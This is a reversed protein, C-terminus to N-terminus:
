LFLRVVSSLSSTLQPGDTAPRVAFSDQVLSHVRHGKHQHSGILGCDIDQTRQLGRSHVHLSGVLLEVLDVVAQPVDYSLVETPLLKFPLPTPSNISSVSPVRFRRGGELPEWYKKLMVSKSVRSPSCSLLATRHFASVM